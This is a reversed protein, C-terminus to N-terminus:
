EGLLVYVNELNKPNWRKPPVPPAAAQLDVYVARGPTDALEGLPVAQGTQANRVTLGLALHRKRIIEMLQAAAKDEEASTPSNVLRVIATDFPDVARLGCSAILILAVALLPKSRWSCPSV